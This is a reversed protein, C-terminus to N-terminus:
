KLLVMKRTESHEDAELRYFYIGSPYRNADFIISHSGAAATGDLLVEIKRGLLDYVALNIDQGESLTFSIATGANFPNPYNQRLSTQAPMLTSNDDVGSIDAALKCLFVDTGNDPIEHYGAVIYGGDSAQLISQCYLDQTSDILVKTWLSDGNSNIKLICSSYSPVLYIGIGTLAYAGDSTRCISNAVMAATYYTKTWITDGSADINLAAIKGTSPPISLKGALIYGGNEKVIISRGEDDSSYGYTRTWLTDGGSDTKLVYIDSNGAGFSETWGIIIFGGDLTEKVDWAREDSVGGYNRSWILEGVNNIKAIFIDDMFNAINKFGAIIFGGDSTEEISRGQGGGLDYHWLVNGMSDVKLVAYQGSSYGTILYGGDVLSVVSRGEEYSTNIYTHTWISDGNEDTKLLYLRPGDPDPLVRYGVIIFNGEPTEKIQRAVDTVPGGYHRTWLTDPAQAYVFIPLIILFVAILFRGKIM